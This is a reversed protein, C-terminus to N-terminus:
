RCKKKIFEKAYAEACAEKMLKTPDGILKIDEERGFILNDKIPKNFLVPEQQVYGIMSRLYHLDYEKIDVGDILVQGSHAEYLREILNVTTSKGCGSEGVLAVKKGPEIVLNLGELIKRKNPDSPYIFTIDKFEIRGQINERPPKYTSHTEDIQPKREVLTFYDSSAVAAEQIIKLNPAISGISMMAMLTSFIVKLVDGASFPEGTNSNTEGDYILVRGYILAIVFTLIIFFIIGAISIGLKYAKEKDYKHVKDIYKGFRETEFEFNTFSAVTKINYLMEEAVGGAKEYTKRALIITRKLATVLYMICACLFPTVCLMVLTLKWSTSFAIVLGAVIQAIMLLVVGFKDGIGLEIQELQAQVKTAFEFANNQDFWGQEQKLIIAFYKEKLHHMQRLASYAWMFTMLFNAVFMSVGIIILKKVMKAVTKKFSKMMENWYIPMSPDIGGGSTGAFDNIMDGFLLTMLPGAIGSGLSGIVGFIMLVIETTESLHCYLKIPSINKQEFMLNKKLQDDVNEEKSDESKQDDQIIPPANGNKNEVKKENDNPNSM